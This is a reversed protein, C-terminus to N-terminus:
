IKMEFSVKKKIAGQYLELEVLWDRRGATCVPIVVEAKWNQADLKVFGYENKGMEMEKMRFLVVARDIANNKDVIRIMFPQLAKVEGDIFVELKKDAIFIECSVKSIQCKSYLAPFEVVDKKFFYNGILILVLLLLMIFPHLKKNTM